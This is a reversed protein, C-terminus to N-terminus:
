VESDWRILRQQGCTNATVWMNRLTDVSHTHTNPTYTSVALVPLDHVRTPLGVSVETNPGAAKMGKDRQQEGAHLRIEPCAENIIASFPERYQPM